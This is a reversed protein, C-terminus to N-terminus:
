TRVVDGYKTHLEDLLKCNQFRVMDWMHTLKALHLRLPGPVHRVESSFLRFVTISGFLALFYAADIAFSERLAERFPLEELKCEAFPILMGALIYLRSINAAALDYEGRLFFIWHSALGAAAAVSLEIYFALM